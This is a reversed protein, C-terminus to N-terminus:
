GATYNLEALLEVGNEIIFPVSHANAQWGRKLGERILTMAWKPQHLNVGSTSPNDIVVPAGVRLPGGCIADEWTIFIIRLPSTRDCEAYAEFLDYCRYEFTAANVLQYSPKFAWLYTKADVIISRFKQKAM